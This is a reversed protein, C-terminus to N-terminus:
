RHTSRPRSEEFHASMNAILPNASEEFTGGGESAPNSTSALRAQSKKVSSFPTGARWIPIM